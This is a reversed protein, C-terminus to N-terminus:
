RAIEKIGEEFGVPEIGFAERMRSVDCVNGQLLMKLQDTTVPPMPLIKELLRVVPRVLALPLHVLARKKGMARCVARVMENYTLAEPSGLEYAEGITKDSTLALSFCAAVDHVSVPQLRYNGDGIVPVLPLLRAQRLLMNIFEGGPGYIISPRFITSDLGSSRVAEEAEWKTLQYRTEGGPGAGLASMHVYRRIGAAATAALVNRTGEVHIQEFTAGRPEIIIGVLHIVAKCGQAAENLSDRDLIDGVALDAGLGRLYAARPHGPRRVLCKIRHGDAVLRAALHGGVFGTAGTILVPKGDDPM